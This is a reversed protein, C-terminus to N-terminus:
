KLKIEIEGFHEEQYMDIKRSNDLHLLPLFTYIVDEREKSPLLQTFTVKNEKKLFNKIKAYMEKIKNSIDIKKDPIKLHEPVEEHRIRRLKRRSDVELARELAFVLDNVSVKRKRAQPTKITLKPNIREEPIDEFQELEEVEEPPYLLSDFQALNETLLKDSKIKLLISSALIVKGSLSFNIEQLKKVIDIYRQTLLSIDIDWPNMKETKVLDYLITQWTIEDEKLLMDLIQDQM